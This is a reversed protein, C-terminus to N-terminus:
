QGKQLAMEDSSTRRLLVYGLATALFALSGATIRPHLRAKTYLSSRAVHGNYEGTEQLEGSPHYLGNHQEYSHREVEKQQADFMRREMMKDTLNPAYYGAMSLAKAGGGVFLDRVPNEASYLIADAVISPSYVPAPVNPETPLYNRAHVTYPTNIAAPKILTVSVPSGDHELEMRLADTFGKIAHKSASYTGQIPVARDSVTSGINIIAGGKLALHDAALISGYVVGWYNTDFLRRQDELSVDTLKGYISVAANNVWTDFGGFHKVAEDRVNRVQSEVGVDAKVYIADTGAANLEEILTQLAPEARAVLVLKAGRKAAMRATVLGIGSSAGTIVMVQDELRKLRRM